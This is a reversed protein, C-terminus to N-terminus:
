RYTAEAQTCAAQYNRELTHYDEDLQQHAIGIERLYTDLADLKAQWEATAKQRDADSTRIGGTTVITGDALTRTNLEQFEPKDRHIQERQGRARTENERLTQRKADLLSKKERYQRELDALRAALLATHDPQPPATTPEPNETEPEPKSEALPDTVADLRAEAAVLRRQFDAAQQVATDREEAFIAIRDHFEPIITQQIEHNQWALGVTILSLLIILFTKM